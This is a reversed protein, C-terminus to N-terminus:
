EGELNELIDEKAFQSCESNKLYEKIEKSQKLSIKMVDECYTKFSLGVVSAVKV